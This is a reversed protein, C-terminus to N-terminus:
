KTKKRSSRTREAQVVLKAGVADALKGATELRLDREGHLFRTIVSADVGTEQQLSYASRGSKLIAQRLTDALTM